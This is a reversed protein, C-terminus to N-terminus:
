GVLRPTHSQIGVHIHLIARALEEALWGHSPVDEIPGNSASFATGSNVNEGSSIQHNRSDAGERRRRSATVPKHGIFGCHGGHKHYVLRVPATEATDSERVVDLLASRAEGAISLTSPSSPVAPRPHGTPSASLSLPFEEQRPLSNEDIFPDDLANVAVTPVRVKPLWWKSGTKRYYDVNDKFGYIKAIFLTDFEGITRCSRIAEIDLTNPFQV